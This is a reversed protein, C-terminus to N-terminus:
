DNHSNNTLVSQKYRRHERMVAAWEEKSYKYRGEAHRAASQKKLKEYKEPNCILIALRKSCNFAKGLKSYSLGQKRMEILDARQEDTLKVRRDKGKPLKIKDTQFKYPM